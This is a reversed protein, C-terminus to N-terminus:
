ARLGFYEKLSDVITIQYGFYYKWSFALWLNLDLALYYKM